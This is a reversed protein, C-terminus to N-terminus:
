VKSRTRFTLVFLHFRTDEQDRLLYALTIHKGEYGQSNTSSSDCLRSFLWGKIGANEMLVDSQVREQHHVRTHAGTSLKSM